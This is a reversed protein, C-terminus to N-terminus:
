YRKSEEIFKKVSRIFSVIFSEKKIDKKDKDKSDIIWDKKREPPSVVNNTSKFKVLIM